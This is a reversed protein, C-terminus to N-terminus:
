LPSLSIMLILAIRRQKMQMIINLLVLLVFHLIIRFTNKPSIESVSCSRSTFNVMILNFRCVIKAYKAFWLIMMM